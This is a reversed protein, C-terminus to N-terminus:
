DDDAKKKREAEADIQVDDFGGPMLRMSSIHSRAIYDLAQARTAFPGALPSGGLHAAAVSQDVWWSAETPFISCFLVVGGLIPCVYGLWRKNERSLIEEM